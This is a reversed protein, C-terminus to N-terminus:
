SETSTPRQKLGALPDCKCRSLKDILILVEAKGLPTKAVEVPHRGFGLNLNHPWFRSVPQSRFLWSAALDPGFTALAMGAIDEDMAELAKVEDDFEKKRREVDVRWVEAITKAATM